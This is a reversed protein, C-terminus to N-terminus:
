VHVLLPFINTVANALWSHLIKKEANIIYYYTPFHPSSNDTKGAPRVSQFMTPNDECYNDGISLAEILNLPFLQPYSFFLLFFSASHIHHCAWLGCQVAMNM